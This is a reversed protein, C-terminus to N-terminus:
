GPKKIMETQMFHRRRDGWKCEKCANLKQLCCIPPDQKKVRDSVRDKTQLM